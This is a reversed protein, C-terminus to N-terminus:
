DGCLVPSCDVKGQTRFTWVSEGTKRDLCHLRKDRGGILIRDRGVAASSFYPFARDMYRWVVEKQALDFCLVENGYHGIFGRDGDLAPSAAIYAGADIMAIRSGDTASVVHIGADCGGVIVRDGSVAPAGNVYNDTEYVWEAEGSASNVCHLRGDYSGVLIWPPDGDPRPVYNAAGLVQDGTAYKWVLKGTEAELRYLHFDASGVYVAGDLYLPAAEVKDETEYAWIEKGTSLDIAYVKGNDSGIYARGDSIAATSYVPKGTEFRWEMEPTTEIPIGARGRMGPDGRFMPWSTVGAAARPFAALASFRRGVLGESAAEAAAFLVGLVTLVISRRAAIGVRREAATIGITTARNGITM